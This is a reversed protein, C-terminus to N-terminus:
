SSARLVLRDVTAREVVDPRPEVGLGPGNPVAMSGRLADFPVTLDESFYRRSPGLDPPLTCGPLAAVALNLARGIGTELMGGSRVGVGADRCRAHIRV